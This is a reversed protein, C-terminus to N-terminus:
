QTHRTSWVLLKAETLFKLTISGQNEFDGLNNTKAQFSHDIDKQVFM